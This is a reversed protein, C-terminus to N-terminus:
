ETFKVDFPEHPEYSKCYQAIDLASNEAYERSTFFHAEIRWVALLFKECRGDKYKICDKCRKM